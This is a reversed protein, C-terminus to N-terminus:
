LLVSCSITLKQMSYLIQKLRLFTSIHILLHHLKHWGQMSLAERSQIECQPPFDHKICAIHYIGVLYICVVWM